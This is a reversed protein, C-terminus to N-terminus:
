QATGRLLSLASRYLAGLAIIDERIIGPTFSLNLQTMRMFQRINGQTIAMLSLGQEVVM